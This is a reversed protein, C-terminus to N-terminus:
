SSGAGNFLDSARRWANRAIRRGGSRGDEDAQEFHIGGYRRSLGAERAAHTFTPWSLTVEDRPTLGTEISSSRAPITVSLGFCDSGTFLRLTEAGAASFTSHGSAYEPFPPTPFTP